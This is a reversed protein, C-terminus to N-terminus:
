PKGPYPVLGIAPAAPQTRSRAPAAFTPSAFQPEDAEDESTGDAVSAFYRFEADSLRPADIVTRERWGRRAMARIRLRAGELGFFISVLLALLSAYFGLDLLEGVGSLLLTLGLALAAEIWLRHWLLWLVPVLFAPWHFGDRVFLISGLEGAPAGEKEMVVYASM